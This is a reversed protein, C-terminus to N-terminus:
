LDTRPIDPIVPRPLADQIKITEGFDPPSNAGEIALIIAEMKDAVEMDREYAVAQEPTMGHYASMPVVWTVTLTRTVLLEKEPETTTAETETM